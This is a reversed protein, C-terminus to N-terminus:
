QVGLQGDCSPCWSSFRFDDAATRLRSAAADSPAREGELVLMDNAVINLLEETLGIYRAHGPGLVSSVKEYDEEFVKVHNAFGGDNVVTLHYALVKDNQRSPLSRNSFQEPTAALLMEYIVCGLSFVDGKRGARVPKEKNDKGIKIAEPAMWEYTGWTNTYDCETAVEVGYSIGFDTYFIEVGDVLVNEPKIDRHIINREHLAALTGAM